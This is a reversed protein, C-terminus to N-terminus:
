PPHSREAGSDRMRENLYDHEARLEDLRRLLRLALARELLDDAEVNDNDARGGVEDAGRAEERKESVPFHRLNAALVEFPLALLNEEARQLLAVGVQFIVKVGELMFVDWVREVVGLPLSYAFLTVFWQTAFMSAHVCERQFHAALRPLHEGLLGELQHLCRRVLPMGPSYLGELPEHVAGRFLAVMVWFADEESMHLLLLGAVFGMGQVYGVERDYVSYARLVNYLSRQGAGDPKAFFVHSPFTRSIDKAIDDDREDLTSLVLEDYVGHHCARLERGGSMVQWAYGRLPAPVGKRTRRQVVQPKARVYAKWDDVTVGLMRRWKRLRKEAASLLVPPDVAAPGGYSPGPEDDSSAM